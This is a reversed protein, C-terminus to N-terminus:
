GGSVAESPQWKQGIGGVSVLFSSSLPPPPLPDLFSPTRSSGRGSAGVRTIAQNHHNGYNNCADNQGKQSLNSGRHTCVKQNKKLKKRQNSVLDEVSDSQTKM